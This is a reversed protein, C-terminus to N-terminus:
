KPSTEEIIKVALEDIGDSDEAHIQALMFSVMIREAAARAIRNKPWIKHQYIKVLRKETDIIVPRGGKSKKDSRTVKYKQKTASFLGRVFAVDGAAQDFSARGAASLESARLAAPFVKETLVQHLHRQLKMYHPNVENFSHRDVNLADELGHEVFIEGSVWDRRFGQVKEYGLCALDYEGIAVNRIRVLVGRMDAPKVMKTQLYIYGKYCLQHGEIPGESEIRFARSQTKEAAKAPLVVPKKIPTGDLKVSFNYGALADRIDKVAERAKKAEEVMETSKKDKKSSTFIDDMRLPGDQTFPVPCSICLEWLLLWYDGLERVSRRSRIEKLFNSFKLPVQKFERRAVDESYRKTYTPLLDKTVILVGTQSADYPIPKCTYKGIEYEGSELVQAESIEERRYPRLDVTAEFATKSKRHHSVVQFQYCVQAIALMGIGIRGIVPRGGPTTDSGVGARKLSNGIGGDMLRTFETMTMGSGNDHCTLADFRPYNTSIEVITADADFANSVLEKLANATSRYLGSSIHVLTKSSLKIAKM